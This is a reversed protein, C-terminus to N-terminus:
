DPQNVQWFGCNAAHPDSPHGPPQDLPKRDPTRHQIPSYYCEQAPIEFSSIDWPLRLLSEVNDPPTSESHFSFPSSASPASHISSM